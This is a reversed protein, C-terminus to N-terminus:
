EASYSKSTDITVTNASSDWGVGFNFTQGLDRLKFYNNGDITYATLNIEKGDLYVKSTNLTATKSSNDGKALEGGVVTYAKGSLMNIAQKDNDWSVDFQKGSASLVLAIDRLKFYNNSNIEYANFATEKGNVLIKSSTPKAELPQSNAIPLEVNSKLGTLQKPQM